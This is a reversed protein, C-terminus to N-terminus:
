ETSPRRAAARKDGVSPWAGRDRTERHKANKDCSNPGGPAETTWEAPDRRTVLVTSTDQKIGM